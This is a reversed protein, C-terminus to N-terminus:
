WELPGIELHLWMPTLVEVYSSAPPPAPPVGNLSYCVAYLSEDVTWALISPM